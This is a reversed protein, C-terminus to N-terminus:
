TTWSSRTRGASSTSTASWCTPTTSGSPATTSRRWRRTAPKRATSRCTRGGSLRRISTSGPTPRRSSRREQSAHFFDYLFERQLKLLEEDSFLGRNANCFAGAYDFARPDSEGYVALKAYNVDGTLETEDQNKKDKPEFTEICERRNEDAVLRVVEIHEDLVCELDDDYHALLENLYFESAPDPHQDNRLTYPADLRENIEEIVGEGQPRPILVLPDQNMPSRVGDDGPDQDEIVSCLDVWRFTYMQGDEERTYAEFYRRVTWDFHSKGSSVHRLLPKIRKEPGFGRAGSKM